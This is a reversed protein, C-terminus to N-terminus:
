QQSVPSICIEQTSVPMVQNKVARYIHDFDFVGGFFCLDLIDSVVINKRTATIDQRGDCRIISFLFREASVLLFVLTFMILCTVSSNVPLLKCHYFICLPLLAFGVM